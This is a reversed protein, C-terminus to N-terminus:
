RLGLARTAADRMSDVTAKAAVVREDESAVTLNVELLHAAARGAGEALLCAAVADARLDARCRGAVEAALGAVDAALEAIELPAAGAAAVARGIEWDRREPDLEARRRLVDAARAHAKADVGGLELARRRLQHAQAAAGGAEVWDASMRTSIELLAAADAIVRAALPGGLAVAARAEDDPSSTTAEGM